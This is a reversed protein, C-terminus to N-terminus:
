ESPSYPKFFSSIVNFLITVNNSEKSDFINSDFEDSLFAFAKNMHEGSKLAVFAVHKFLNLSKGQYIFITDKNIQHPYSLTVFLSSDRIDIDFVNLGNADMLNDLKFLCDKQEEMNNFELLFDRTMRPSVKKYKISLADLFAEHDIPRYYYVPNLYPKQTLGTCVIFKYDPFVEFHQHLIRDYIEIADSIPDEDEKIYWAPLTSTSKSFSSANFYHHQIHAFGNLFVTSFDINKKKALKIHIDSLLLDLFLAKNWKGSFSKVVLRLYTSINILRAFYFFIVALKLLSSTKIKGVANDNVTQTLVDHIIRSFFSPDPKTDTWPDPIFYEPNKLKNATNMPSLCGVRYNNEEVIEYIQKIDSNIIDGLRFIKHEKFRKGTNISVWQIWPELEEYKEECSFSFDKLSFLKQFGLFKKNSDKVYNKIIDMNLENLQLFLLKEQNSTKIM